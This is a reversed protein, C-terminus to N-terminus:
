ELSVTLPFDPMYADTQYNLIRKYSERYIRFRDGLKDELITEFSSFSNTTSFSKDQDSLNDM